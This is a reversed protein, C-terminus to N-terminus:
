HSVNGPPFAALDERALQELFGRLESDTLRRVDFWRSGLEIVLIGTPSDFDAEKIRNAEMCTIEPADFFRM